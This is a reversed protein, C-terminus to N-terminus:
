GEGRGWVGGVRKKLFVELGPVLYERQWTEKEIQAETEWRYLPLTFPPQFLPM